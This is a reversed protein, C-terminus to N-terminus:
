TERPKGRAPYLAHKRIYVEVPEPVMYRIPEGRQVRDRIETSSLDFAPANVLDIRRCLEKPLSALLSSADFGSRAVAVFRCERLVDQWRYWTQIETVTDAGAIFFLEGHTGVESRFERITTLSYSPGPREMERRSVVFAANGATALLVMAYRHEAPTVEHGKHPPDGAPIFIVQDLSLAHRAVEAIMLHGSHVPDFTGGLLGLRV